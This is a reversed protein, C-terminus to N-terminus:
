NQTAHSLKGGGGFFFVGTPSLGPQNHAPAQAAPDVLVLHQDLVAAPLGESDGNDM